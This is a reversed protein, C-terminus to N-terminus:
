RPAADEGGHCSAHLPVHLCSYFPQAQAHDSHATCSTAYCAILFHSGLAHLGSTATDDPAALQQARELLLCRAVTRAVFVPAETHMALAISDSPRVDVSRQGGKELDLVLRAYYVHGVLRTIAVRKLSAGAAQWKNACEIMICWAHWGLLGKCRASLLAGAM